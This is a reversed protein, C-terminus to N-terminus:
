PTTFCKQKKQGGQVGIVALQNGFCEVERTKPFAKDKCRAFHFGTKTEFFIRSQAPFIQRKLRIKVANSSAFSVQPM